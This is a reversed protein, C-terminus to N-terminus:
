QVSQVLVVSNCWNTEEIHMVVINRSRCLKADVNEETDHYRIEGSSEEPVDGVEVRHFEAAENRGIVIHKATIDTRLIDRQDSARGDGLMQEARCRTDETGSEAGDTEISTDDM